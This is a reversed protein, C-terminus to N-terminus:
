QEARRLECISGDCVDVLLVTVEEDDDDVHSIHVVTTRHRPPETRVYMTHLLIM